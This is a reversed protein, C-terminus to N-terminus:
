FKNYMIKYIYHILGPHDYIKESVAEANVGNFANWNIVQSCFPVEGIDQCRRAGGSIVVCEDFVDNPM